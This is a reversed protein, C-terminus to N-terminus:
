LPGYIHFFVLLIQFDTKCSFAASVFIINNMGTRPIGLVNEASMMHRWSVSSCGKGSSWEQRGKGVVYSMRSQYSFFSGETSRLADSSHGGTTPGTRHHLSRSGVSVGAIYGLLSFCDAALPPSWLLISREALKSPTIFVIM